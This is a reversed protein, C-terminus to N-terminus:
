AAPGGPPTPPPGSRPARATIPRAAAGSGERLHMSCREEEWAGNGELLRRLLRRLVRVDTDSLHRSFSQELTELFVGQARDFAAVGAPTIRTLVVRRNEPPVERRVLGSDVLRDVIRTIGSKSVLLLGALDVMRLGSGAVSLRSLVEFEALSLGTSARLEQQLANEVVQNAHLLHVWAGVREQNTSAM